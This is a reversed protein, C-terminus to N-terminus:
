TERNYHSWGGAFWGNTASTKGTDVCDQRYYFCFVTWHRRGLTDKYKVRGYIALSPKNPQNHITAIDESTLSITLPYTQAQHPPLIFPRTEDLGYDPKTPLPKVRINEFKMYLHTIRGPSRGYNRFCLTAKIETSTATAFSIATVSTLSTLIWPRELRTLARSVNCAQWFIALLTLFCVALYLYMQTPTM